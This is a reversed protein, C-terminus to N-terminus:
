AKTKWLELWPALCCRRPSRSCFRLLFTLQNTGVDAPVIVVVAKQVRPHWRNGSPTKRPMPKRLTERGARIHAASTQLLCLLQGRAPPVFATKVLSPSAATHQLSGEMGGCAPFPLTQHSTIGVRAASRQLEPGLLRDAQPQPPPSFPPSLAPPACLLADRLPFAKVFFLVM